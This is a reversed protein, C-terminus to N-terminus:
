YGLIWGDDTGETITNVQGDKWQVIQVYPQKVQPYGQPGPNILERSLPMDVGTETSMFEALTRSDFEDFGVEEAVKYFWKISQYGWQPNSSRADVDSGEMAKLYEAIEPDSEDDWNTFELTSWAGEMAAGAPEMATEYNLASSPVSIRDAPFGSQQFAKFMQVVQAGSLPFTIVFDPDHDLVEAVYPTLDTATLPFHVFEVEKGCEDLVPEVATPVDRRQTPLDLVFTVVKQVDSWSCLYRAMARMEGFGGPMAGFSWPNKFDEPSNLCNFSPVKAKAYLQLGTTTWTLECGFEAIPDKALTKHACVSASAPQGQTNCSDIVVRRGGFGGNANIEDAAAQAGAAFPTLLDSGPIQLTNLAFRVPPKSEDIAGGAAADATSSGAGGTSTTEADDGSGCATLGSLSLLAVVLGAAAHKTRM